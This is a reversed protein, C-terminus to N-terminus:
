HGMIDCSHPNELETHPPLECKRNCFLCKSKCGAANECLNKIKEICDYWYEQFDEECPIKSILETIKNHM